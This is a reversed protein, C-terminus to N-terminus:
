CFNHTVVSGQLQLLRCAVDVYPNQTTNTCGAPNSLQRLGAHGASQTINSASHAHTHRNRVLLTCRILPEVLQLLAYRRAQMSAPTNAPQSNPQQLGQEAAAAQHRCLIRLVRTTKRCSGVPTIATPQMHPTLNPAPEAQKPTQPVFHESQVLGPVLLM